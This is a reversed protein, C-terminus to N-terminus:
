SPQKGYRGMVDTEINVEEGPTYHQMITHSWTFPIIAFTLVDDVIDAITLSVGDIAISGKQVVFNKFEKPIRVQLKNEQAQVVVGTGEVHGQVVHGDFRSGAVMARELNLMEGNKKASFTTKSLTEPTLDFGMEEASLEAVTLCCGNVAVSSGLHVDTFQSPRQIRLKQGSIALIPAQAEVIGTFM